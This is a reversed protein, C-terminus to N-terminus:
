AARRRKRSTIIKALEARSVGMTLLTKLMLDISVSPDGSEIFSVRSPSSGIRSALEAQTLGKALRRQRVGEALALKIEIFQVEEKSLDLFDAATGFRWGARQLKVRKTKKM